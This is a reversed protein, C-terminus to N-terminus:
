NSLGKGPLGSKVDGGTSSNPNPNDHYTGDNGNAIWWIFVSIFALLLGILLSCINVSGPTPFFFFTILFISVGIVTFGSRVYKESHFILQFISAGALAPYYTFIALIVGSLNADATNSWRYLEVWVGYGGAGVIAILLFAWFSLQGLPISLQSCVFEGFDKFSNKLPDYSHKSM